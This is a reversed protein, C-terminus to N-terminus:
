ARAPIREVAGAPKDFFRHLAIWIITASLVGELFGMAVVIIATYVMLFIHFGNHRLVETIEAPKVMASSIFLLIGGICAMPVVELYQALFAAPISSLQQTVYGTTPLANAEGFSPIRFGRSYTGRVTVQRIPNFIAGFQPPCHRLCADCNICELMEIRLPVNKWKENRTRTEIREARTAGM